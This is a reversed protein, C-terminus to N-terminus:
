VRGPAAAVVVVDADMVGDDTVVGVVRDGDSRLSRVPAHHHIAAGAERALLGLGVTLARPDLRRGTDSVWGRVVSPAISPELARVAAADVEKARSGSPPEAEDGELEVLLYGIPGRDIWVPLPARDAVELFM